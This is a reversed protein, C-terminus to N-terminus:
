DDDVLWSQFRETLRDQNNGWFEENQSIGHERNDPHNPFDRSRIPQDKPVPSYGTYKVLNNNKPGTAYRVLEIADEINDSAKPVSFYAMGRVHSNWHVKVDTVGEEEKLTKIVPTISTTAVVSGSMLLNTTQSSYSWWKIRDKIKDMTDFALDVGEETRLADYIKDKPIGAGLLALELTNRPHRKLGRDGPIDPDFFDKASDIETKSPRTVLGHAYVLHAVGCPKIAGDIYNDPDFHDELHVLIGSDCGIKRAGGAFDVMDIKNDSNSEAETRIKGLMSDGLARTQIDIGYEQEFDNFFSKKQAEEITGGWTLVQLTRDAMATGTTGFMLVVSMVAMM